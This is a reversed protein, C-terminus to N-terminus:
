RSLQKLDHKMKHLTKGCQTDFFFRRYRSSALPIFLLPAVLLVGLVKKFFAAVPHRHAHIYDQKALKKVETILQRHINAEVQHDRTNKIEHSVIHVFKSQLALAEALLLQSRQSNLRTIESDICAFLNQDLYTYYPSSFFNEVRERDNNESRSLVSNKRCATTLTDSILAAQNTEILPLSLGEVM